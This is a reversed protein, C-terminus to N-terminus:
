ESFDRLLKRLIRTDTNQLLAVLRAKIESAEDKVDEKLSEVDAYAGDELLQSAIRPGLIKVLFDRNGSPFSCRCKIPDCGSM